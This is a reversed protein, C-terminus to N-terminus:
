GTIMEFVATTAVVNTAVAAAVRPGLSPKM